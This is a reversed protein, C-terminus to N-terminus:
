SQYYKIRVEFKTNCGNGKIVLPLINVIDPFNDCILYCRANVTFLVSKKPCFSLKMYSRENPGLEGIAKDLKFVFPSKKSPYEADRNKLVNLSHMSEISIITSNNNIIMKADELEIETSVDDQLKSTEYETGGMDETELEESYEPCELSSGYTIEPQQNYM